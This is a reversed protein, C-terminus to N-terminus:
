RRKNGHRGHDPRVQVEPWPTGPQWNWQHRCEHCAFQWNGPKASSDMRFGGCQPCQAIVAEAQLSPGPRSGRPPLGKGAPDLMTVTGTFGQDMVPPVTPVGAGPYDHAEQQGGANWWGGAPTNRPDPAAPQPGTMWSRSAPAAPQGGSRRLDTSAPPRQGSAYRTPDGAARDSSPGSAPPREDLLGTWMLAGLVAAVVFAIVITEPWNISAHGHLLQHAVVAGLFAVVFFIVIWALDAQSDRTGRASLRSRQSSM